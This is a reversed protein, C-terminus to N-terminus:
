SKLLAVVDAHKKLEALQLATQNKSNKQAPDAKAELLGKVIDVKGDEAAAHIPYKSGGCCGASKKDNHSAFKNSKLFEQVQSERHTKEALEAAVKAEREEAEAKLKLAQAAEEDGRRKAEEAEKRDLEAQAELEAAIRRQEEEEEKLLKAAQEEEARRLEAEEEERKRKEEAELDVKETDEVEEKVPEEDTIITQDTTLPQKDCCVGGM